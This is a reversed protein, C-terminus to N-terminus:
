ATQAGQPGAVARQGIAASISTPVLQFDSSGSRLDSAACLACLVMGRMKGKPRLPVRKVNCNIEFM